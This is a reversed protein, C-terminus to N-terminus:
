IKLCSNRIGCFQCVIKTKIIVTLNQCELCFYFVVKESKHDEKHNHCIYCPYIKRCCDFFPIQNFIYHECENKHILDLGKQNLYDIQITVEKEIKRRNEETIETEKNRSKESQKSFIKGSNLEKLVLEKEEDCLSNIFDTLEINSDAVMKLYRNRQNKLFTNQNLLKDKQIVLKGNKVQIQNCVEDLKLLQSKTNDLKLKMEEIYKLRKDVYKKTTINNCEICEVEEEGCSHLHQIFSSYRFKENCKCIFYLKDLNNKISKSNPYFFELYKCKFPCARAYSIYNDICRECFINLCYKCAKPNVVIGNCICCTVLSKFQSYVEKNVILDCNIFM